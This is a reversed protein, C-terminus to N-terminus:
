MRLLNKNHRVDIDRIKRLTLSLQFGRSIIVMVIFGLIEFMKIDFSKKRNGKIKSM